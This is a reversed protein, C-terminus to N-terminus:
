PESRGVLYAAIATPLTPFVLEPGITELVGHRRLDDVLESKARVLALTVNRNACRRAVEALGDLGTIDVESVAEVNILLWQAPPTAEDVADLCRSVFLDANAFIL